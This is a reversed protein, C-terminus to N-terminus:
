VPEQDPAGSFLDQARREVEEPTLEEIQQNLSWRYGFPDKVISSRTGWFFDRPEGLSEAGAEVARNHASDCDDTSISFLCAAMQGEPMAFAHWEPSEGSIYIRSNGIMFEAHAISGDPAPLRFLEQAGFAERYFDLAKAADLVTLSFSVTPEPSHKM